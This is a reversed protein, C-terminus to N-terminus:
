HARGSKQTLIRILTGGVLSIAACGEAEPQVEGEPWALRSEIVGGGEGFKGRGHLTM